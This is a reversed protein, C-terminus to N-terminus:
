SISSLLISANVSNLTLSIRLNLSLSFSSSIISSWFSIFFSRPEMFMASTILFCFFMKSLLSLMIGRISDYALSSSVTFSFSICRSLFWMSMRILWFTLLVTDSLENLLMLNGRTTGWSCILTSVLRLMSCKTTLYICYVTALAIRLQLVMWSTAFMTTLSSYASSYFKLGQIQEILTLLM